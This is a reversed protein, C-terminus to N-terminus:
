RFERQEIINNYEVLEAESHFINESFKKNEGEYIAIKTSTSGPNIVLINFGM